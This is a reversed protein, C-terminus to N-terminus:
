KSTGKHLINTWGGKDAKFTDKRDPNEVVWLTVNKRGRFRGFRGGGGGRRRSEGFAM